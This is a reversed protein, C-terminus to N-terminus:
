NTQSSLVQQVLALLDDQFTRDHVALHFQAPTKPPVATAYLEIVPARGAVENLWRYADERDHSLLSHGLIVLDVDNHRLTEVFDDIDSVSLVRHGSKRLIAGRTELLIHDRSMSLITRPM